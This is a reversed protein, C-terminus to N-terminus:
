GLLVPAAEGNEFPYIALGSVIKPFFFTSKPPMRVGTEAIQEVLSSSAAPLLFGAHARGGEVAWFLKEVDQTFDLRPHADPIDAPIGLLPELIAYHLQAVPLQRWSAPRDPLRDALPDAVRPKLVLLRGTALYCCISSGPASVQRLLAQLAPATPAEREELEFNQQLRAILDAANFAGEARVLRHTPLIRLGEDKASVCFVPLFDEPAAGPPGDSSHHLQRYRLATEYRHHGDAILLREGRLLAALRRVEDSAGARWVRYAVGDPDTFEYLPMETTLNRVLVAAEGEADSFVGFVQSLSARCAEMLRLRDAKPGDMTQEHPMIRGSSFEELLLACILGHRVVSEGDLEFVQQVVYVSPHEERVLIGRRRWQRFTDAAEAYASDLRGAPGAKGLILRVVNHPDQARLEEAEAQAILDYPPAVVRSIFSIAEPNYRLPRFAAIQLL